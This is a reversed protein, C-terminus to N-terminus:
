MLIIKFKDKSDHVVFKIGSYYGFFTGLNNLKGRIHAFLRVSISNISLSIAIGIFLVVKVAILEQVLQMSHSVHELFILIMKNVFYFM